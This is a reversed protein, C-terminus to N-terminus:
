VIATSFFVLIRLEEEIGLFRHEALAKVYVISGPCLDRDVGDV